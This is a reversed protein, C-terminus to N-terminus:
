ENDYNDYMQNQNNKKVSRFLKPKKKIDSLLAEMIEKKSVPLIDVKEFDKIIKNYIDSTLYKDLFAYIENYIHEISDGLVKLQQKFQNYAEIDGLIKNKEFGIDRYKRDFTLFIEEDLMMDEISIKDKLEDLGEEINNKLETMNKRVIDINSKNKIVFEDILQILKAEIAKVMKVLSNFNFTIKDKLQLLYKEDVKQVGENLNKFLEQVLNHSSILYDYKEKFDHGNHAGSKVCESCISKRCDYCYFYPYKSYHIPCYKYSLKLKILEDLEDISDYSVSIDFIIVDLTPFLFQLTDADYHTYEKGEHFLKLGKGLAAAAIIIKKLSAITITQNVDFSYRRDKDVIFVAKIIKPYNQSSM